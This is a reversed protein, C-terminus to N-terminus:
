VEEESQEEWREKWEFARKLGAEDLCELGDFGDPLLLDIYGTSVDGRFKYGSEFSITANQKLLELITTKDDM